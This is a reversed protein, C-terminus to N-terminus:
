DLKYCYDEHYVLNNKVQMDFKMLESRLIRINEELKENNKLKEQHLRDMDAIAKNVYSLDLDMVTRSSKFIEGINNHMLSSLEEIKERINAMILDRINEKNELVQNKIRIRNSEAKEESKMFMVKIGGTVATLFGSNPLVPVNYDINEMTKHYDELFDKLLEEVHIDKVEKAVEKFDGSVEYVSNRNESLKELTKQHYSYINSYRSIFVEFQELLMDYIHKKCWGGIANTFIKEAEEKIAATDDLDDIDSFKKEILDPIIVELKEESYKILFSMDKDIKSSFEKKNSELDEILNKYEEMAENLVYRQRKYIDVENKIHTNIEGIKDDINSKFSDFKSSVVNSLCEGAIADLINLSNEQQSIDLVKCNYRIMSEIAAINYNLISESYGEAQKDVLITIVTNIHNSIIYKIYTMDIDRLESHGNVVLVSRDALELLSAKKTTLIVASDNKIINPQTIVDYEFKFEDNGPLEVKGNSIFVLDKKENFIDRGAMANIKDELDINELASIGIVIKNLSNSMKTKVPINEVEGHQECISDVQNYLYSWPYEKLTYKKLEVNKFSRDLCDEAYDYLKKNGKYTDILSIVKSSAEVGRTYDDNQVSVNMLFFSFDFEYQRLYENKFKKVRIDEYIRNIVLIADSCNRFDGNKYDIKGFMDRLYNLVIISQAQIDRVSTYASYMITSWEAMKLDEVLMDAFGLVKRVCQESLNEAKDCIINIMNIWHTTHDNSYEEASIEIADDYNDVSIFYEVSDKNINEYSPAIKIIARVAENCKEVENLVKSSKYISYNKQIYLIEEEAIISEYLPLAEEAGLLDGFSKRAWMLIEFLSLGNKEQVEQTQFRNGTKLFEEMIDIVKKFYEKAMDTDNDELYIEALSYYGDTIQRLDDYQMNSIVKYDLKEIVRTFFERPDIDSGEVKFHFKMCWKYYKKLVLMPRCSISSDSMDLYFNLKSINNKCQELFKIKKELSM